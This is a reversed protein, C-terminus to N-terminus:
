SKETAITPRKGRGCLPMGRRSPNIEQRTPQIERCAHTQGTAATPRPPNRPPRQGPRRVSLDLDLSKWYFAKGPGIMKWNARQAPRAKHLTPYRKLPVSVEREDDLEVILRGKAFRLGIALPENQYNCKKSHM